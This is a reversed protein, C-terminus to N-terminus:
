KKHRLEVWSFRRSANFNTVMIQVVEDKTRRVKDLTWDTGGRSGRLRTPSFFAYYVVSEFVLAGIFYEIWMHSQLVAFAPVIVAAEFGGYLIIKPLWLKESDYRVAIQSTLELNIFREVIRARMSAGYNFGQYNGDFWRLIIILLATAILM